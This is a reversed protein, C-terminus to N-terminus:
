KEINCSIKDINAIKATRIELIMIKEGLDCTVGKSILKVNLILENNEIEYSTIKYYDGGSSTKIPVIILSKKEFFSEDYEKLPEYDYGSPYTESGFFDRMEEINCAIIPTLTRSYYDRFDKIYNYENDLVRHTLSCGSLFITITLVIITLFIKKM